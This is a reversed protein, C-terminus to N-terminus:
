TDDRLTAVVGEEQSSAGYSPVRDRFMALSLDVPGSDENGYRLTPREALIRPTLIDVSRAQASEDWDLAGKM